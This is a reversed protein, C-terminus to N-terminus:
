HLSYSANVMVMDARALDRSSWCDSWLAVIHVQGIGTREGYGYTAQYRTGTDGDRRHIASLLATDAVVVAVPVVQAGTSLRDLVDPSLSPAIVMM